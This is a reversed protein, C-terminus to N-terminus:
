LCTAVAKRRMSFSRFGRGVGSLVEFVCEWAAQSARQTPKRYLHTDCVRTLMSTKALKAPPPVLATLAALFDLSAGVHMIRCEGVHMRANYKCVTGHVRHLVARLEM